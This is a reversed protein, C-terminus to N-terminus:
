ATELNIYLKSSIRREEELKKRLAKVKIDREALKELLNTAKTRAIVLTINLTNIKEGIALSSIIINNTNTPIPIIM